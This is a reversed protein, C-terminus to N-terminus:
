RKGLRPVHRQPQELTLIPDPARRVQPLQSARILELMRQHERERRNEEREQQKGWTRYVILLVVAGGVGAGALMCIASYTLAWASGVVLVILTVGAAIAFLELM